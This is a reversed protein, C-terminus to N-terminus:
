KCGYYLAFQNNHERYTSTWQKSARNTAQAPTFDLGKRLPVIISYQSVNLWLKKDYITESGDILDDSACISSTIKFHYALEKKQYTKNDM